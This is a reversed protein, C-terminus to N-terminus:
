QRKKGSMEALDQKHSKVFEGTRNKVDDTSKISGDSMDRQMSRMNQNHHSIGRQFRVGNRIDRITNRAFSVGTYDALRGATNRAANMLAQGSVIEGAAQLNGRIDDILKDGQDVIGDAGIIELLEPTSKMDELIEYATQEIDKEKLTKNIEDMTKRSLLFNILRTFLWIMSVGVITFLLKLVLNIFGITLYNTKVGSLTMDPTFYNFDWVIPCLLLVINMSVVVGFISMLRRVFEDTWSSLAGGGDVPLTSVAGPYTLALIVLDFLRSVIGFLVSFLIKILIVGGLLLILVNISGENYIDTNNIENTKLKTMAYTINFGGSDLTKVDETKKTYLDVKDFSFYLYPIFQDASLGTITEFGSRFFQTIGSETTGEPLEYSIHPYLDFIGPAYVNERYFVINGNIDTKIATPYGNSDFVGKAIVLSGSGNIYSTNFYNQQNIIPVLVEYEYGNSDQRFEKYCITYVTGNSEDSSNMPSVYETAVKDGAYMVSTIYVTETEGSSNTRTAKTIPLNTLHDGYVAAWSEYVENISKFYFRGFNNNYVLCYDIVDAMVYYENQSYNINKDFYDFYGSHEKVSSASVIMEQNYIQDIDYFSKKKFMLYTAFGKTFGTQSRYEDFSRELDVVRGDNSIEYYNIKNTYDIDGEENDNYVNSFGFTIPIRLNEDAYHRYANAQYTSAQWVRTALSIDQGGSTANYVTAVIVNSLMIGFIFLLPMIIMFFLSKLTDVLVRKKSNSEGVINKFETKAIAIISFVIILVLGIIIVSKLIQKISDQMLFAFVKDDEISSIGEYTSTLGLFERIIAFMFDIAKLIYKGVLVCFRVILNWIFEMCKYTWDRIGDFIVTFISSNEAEVVLGGAGLRTGTLNTLILNKISLLIM